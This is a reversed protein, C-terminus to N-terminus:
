VNNCFNYDECSMGCPDAGSDYWRYMGCYDDPKSGCYSSSAATTGSCGICKVSREFVCHLKMQGSVSKCSRTLGWNGIQWNFPSCAVSNCTPNSLPTKGSCFSNAVVQNDCRRCSQTIAYYGQCCSTRTCTSSQTDKKWSYTCPQCSPNAIKALNACLSDAVYEGDCRRCRQTTTRYGTCCGTTICDSQATIYWAYTFSDCYRSDIPRTSATCRSDPVLMRVADCQYCGVTRRLNGVACSPYAGRSDQCGSWGVNINEPEWHTPICECNQTDLYSGLCFAGGQEPYPNTCTRTRTQTGYGCLTSCVSWPTYASWVGNIPPGMVLADADVRVVARNTDTSLAFPALSPTSTAFPPSALLRPLQSFWPTTAGRVQVSDHYRVLTVLLGKLFCVEVAFPQELSASLAVSEQQQCKSTTGNVDCVYSLPLASLNGGARIGDRTTAFGLAVRYISASPTVALVDTSQTRLMRAESPSLAPDAVVVVQASQASLLRLVSVRHAHHVVLLPLSDSGLTFTPCGIGLAPEGFSAALQPAPASGSASDITHVTLEGLVVVRPPSTSGGAISLVCLDRGFSESTMSSRSFVTFVRSATDFRLTTVERVTSDFGGAGVRLSVVSVWILSGSNSRVGIVGTLQGSVSSASWCVQPVVVRAADKMSDVILENWTGERQVTACVDNRSPSAHFVWTGSIQVWHAADGACLLVALLAM